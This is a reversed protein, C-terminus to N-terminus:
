EIYTLGTIILRLGASIRDLSFGRVTRQFRFIDAKLPSLLADAIYDVDIKPSLEGETVATRLLGSITMHQWFHPLQLRANDIGVQDM